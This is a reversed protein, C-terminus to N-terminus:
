LRSGSTDGFTRVLHTWALQSLKLFLELLKSSAKHADGRHWTRWTHIRAIFSTFGALLKSINLRSWSSHEIRDFFRPRKSTPCEVEDNHNVWSWWLPMSKHQYGSIIERLPRFCYREPIHGVLLHYFKDCLRNNMSEAHWVCQSCILASRKHCLLHFLKKFWETNLYEIGGRVISLGISLGLWCLFNESPEYLLLNFIIRPSPVLHQKLCQQSMPDWPM